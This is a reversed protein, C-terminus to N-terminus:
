RDPGFSDPSQRLLTQRLNERARHVLLRATASRTGLIAAVEEYSLGEMERLILAAQQRAALGSMATRVQCALESTQMATGAAEMASALSEPAPMPRGHRRRLRNMALNVTCRYTWADRRSADRLRDAKRWALVLAEQAIEEADHDNWLFRRALRILRPRMAALWNGAPEPRERRVASSDAVPMEERDPGMPPKVDQEANVPPPTRTVSM